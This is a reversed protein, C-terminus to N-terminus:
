KCLHSNQAMALEMALSCYGHSIAAADWGGISNFLCFSEYTCQHGQQNHYPAQPQMPKSHPNKTKRTIKSM